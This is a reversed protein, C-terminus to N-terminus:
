CFFPLQGCQIRCFKSNELDRKSCLYFYIKSYPKSLDKKYESLVFNDSSGPLKQVISNYPYLLFYEFHKGFQRFHKAQKEKAAELLDQVNCNSRVVLLLTRGKLREKTKNWLVLKFKLMRM